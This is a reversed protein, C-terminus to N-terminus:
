TQNVACITATVSDIPKTHADSPPRRGISAPRNTASPKAVRGGQSTIGSNKASTIRAFPPQPASRVRSARRASALAVSRNESGIATTPAIRATSLTARKPLGNSNPCM